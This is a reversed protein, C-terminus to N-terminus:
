SQMTLFFHAFEVLLVREVMMNGTLSGLPSVCIKHNFYKMFDVFFPEAYRSATDDKSSANRPSNYMLKETQMYITYFM